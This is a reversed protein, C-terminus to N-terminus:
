FRSWVHTWITMITRKDARWDIGGLLEEFLDTTGSAWGPLHDVWAGHALATRRVGSLPAFTLRDDLDLLSGQLM